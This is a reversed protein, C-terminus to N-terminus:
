TGTNGGQPVVALKKSNCYQLIASVQEATKPKLLIHSAGLKCACYICVILVYMTIFIKLIQRLIGKVMKLWDVNHTEMEVSDTVM